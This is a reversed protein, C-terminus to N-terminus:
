KSCVEMTFTKYYTFGNKITPISIIYNFRSYNIYYNNYFISYEDVIIM